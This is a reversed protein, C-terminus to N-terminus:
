RGRTGLHIVEDRAQVMYLPELLERSREKANELSRMARIRHRHVIFHYSKDSFPPLSLRPDEPLLVRSMYLDWMEDSITGSRMESQLRGLADPARVNVDLGVVRRISRWLRFGQRSEANADKATDEEEGDSHQVFAVEHAPPAALSPKSGDTDVPPLQLFDGCVNIALGGFPQQPTM